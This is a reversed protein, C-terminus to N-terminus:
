WAARPRKADVPPLLLLPLPLLSAEVTLLSVGGLLSQLLVVLFLSLELPMPRVKVVQLASSPCTAEVQQLRASLVTNSLLALLFLPLLLWLFLEPFLIHLGRNAM